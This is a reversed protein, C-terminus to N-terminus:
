FAESCGLVYSPREFVIQLRIFSSLVLSFSCYCRLIGMLIKLFRTSHVSNILLRGFAESCWM